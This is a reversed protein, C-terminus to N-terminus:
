QGKILKEFFQYVSVARARYTLKAGVRLARERISQRLPEDSLLKIIADALETPSDPPVLLAAKETRVLEATTLLDTAVVALGAGLYESLKIPFGYDWQQRSPNPIVGIDAVALYNGVATPPVRGTFHINSHFADSDALARHRRDQDLEGTGLVILHTEPVKHTVHRFAALLDDVGRDGYLNGGYLVVYNDPPIPLRLKELLAPKDEDPILDPRHGSHVSHVRHPPVGDELLLRCHTQSATVIGDLAPRPGNTLRVCAQISAPTSHDQHLELVIRFPALRKLLGLAWINNPMGSGYLVDPEMARIRRVLEVFYTRARLTSSRNLSSLPLPPTTRLSLGPHPRLGYFALVDGADSAPSMGALLEVTAGTDALYWLTNVWRIGSARAYPLSVNLPSLIKMGNRLEEGYTLSRLVEYTLSEVNYVSQISLLGCSM